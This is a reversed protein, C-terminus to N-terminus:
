FSLLNLKNNEILKNGTVFLQYNSKFNYNSQFDTINANPRQYVFTRPTQSYIHAGLPLDNRSLVLLPFCEFQFTLYFGGGLCVLPNDDSYRALGKKRRERENEKESERGRQKPTRFNIMLNHTSERMNKLGCMFHRFSYYM